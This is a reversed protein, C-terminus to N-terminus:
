KEATIHITLATSLVFIRRVNRFINALLSGSESINGKIYENPMFLPLATLSLSGFLQLSWSYIQTFVLHMLFNTIHLSLGTSRQVRNMQIVEM